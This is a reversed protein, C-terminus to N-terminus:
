MVVCKISRAVFPSVDARPAATEDFSPRWVRGVLPYKAGAACNYPLLEVRELCRAGDLLRAAGELDAPSDNVGPVLPIRAVFPRGSEKLWKLNAFIPAPDAGTWRAHEAPDPHKIDQYVLDMEAVVRRYDSASAYGSTEIALHLPPVSAGLRERWRARLVPVLELLFEAQM